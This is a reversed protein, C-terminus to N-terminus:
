PRNIHMGEPLLPASVSLGMAAQIVGGLPATLGEVATQVATFDQVDGRVVTVSAGHRRLDEVLNRAPAKDTASRGIFTFHRAGNSLMYRSISRGLGGLCGILLYSKEASFQTSYKAPLVPILSDRDEYSVVVKGVRKGSSFHRFAARIESVDFVTPQPTKARRFLDIADSLLESILKRHRPNDSYYLEHLDFASFTLNRMFARMNLNGADLIDRKGIEVFRGFNACAELSCHLQEGTLSNLVVDVGRNDTAAMLQPLFSLDRSNFIHDPQIGFTTALFSKKEKTGVTAFIEAGIEKALQIAAIGVGGAASHILVSEGEQLNAVNRLAHIATMFVVPATSMMSFDEDDRMKHCAWAPALELTSFRGSSGAIVRDGVVLGCVSAGVRTVVGAYECSCTNKRTEIKGILTYLDKANLSVAKVEIEVHDEPIAPRTPLQIFELSDLQSAEKMSLDCRQATRLPMMKTDASKKDRFSDNAFEDPVFRSIHLVGDQQMFEHDSGEIDCTSFVSLLNSITLEINESTNDLDVVSFKLSPQEAMIARSLGLAAAFEPTGSAILNGGSVWLLKSANNTIKQMCSHTDSSTCSLMPSELEVTAIVSSKAPLDNHALDSCQMMTVQAGLGHELKAKLCVNIPHDPNDVIQSFDSVLDFRAHAMSLCSDARQMSPSVMHIDPHDKFLKTLTAEPDHAIKSAYSFQMSATPGSAAFTNVTMGLQNWSTSHDSDLSM